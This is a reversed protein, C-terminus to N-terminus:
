AELVRFPVSVSGIFFSGYLAGAGDSGGGRWGKRVGGRPTRGAQVERGIRCAPWAV